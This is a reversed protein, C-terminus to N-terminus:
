RILTYGSLTWYSGTITLAREGKGSSLIAMRSGVLRIRRSSDGSKLTKFEGQYTGDEMTILDGPLVRELANKLGAANNVKFIKASGNTIIKPNRSFPNIIFITALSIIIFIILGTLSKLNRM